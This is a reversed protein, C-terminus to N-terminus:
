DATSPVQQVVCLTSNPCCLHWTQRSQTRRAVFTAATSIHLIAAKPFPDNKAETGCQREPPHPSWETSKSISCIAGPCRTLRSDTSHTQHLLHGDAPGPEGDTADSVFCRCSQATGGAHCPITGGRFLSSCGSRRTKVPSSLTSHCTSSRGQM